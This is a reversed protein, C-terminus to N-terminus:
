ASGLGDLARAVREGLASQRQSQEARDIAMQIARTSGVLVVLERARTVATYLLNRQLMMFHQGVLPIVVAPYESGQSRHVTIAFAPQLDSLEEPSYPVVHESFEVFLRGDEDIRAIRGMDGNFIEREYDNRTHIVRDGTRWTRGRLEIERGGIHAAERMRRNLVDVGCDGRYMPALVQVSELWDLGFNKPIRETVVEVTREACQAPDEAPFFYFDAERDGREPLVPFEGQLIRHANEIILSGRAQRFIRTLRYVPLRESSILDRLVNGPGVSPLQDPDGVCVLRTPPRVAKFLHHALVVDLMSIEDVVILDAELPTRADHAFRAARADWGLMRHITAAPCATAESLRKAARGTPSALLVRAGSNRALDVVLRVITTKGVGPGGTLLCLPHTLLGLVAERQASHLEINSEREAHELEREDAMPRVEGGQVLRLVSAALGSESAALWPLYARQEFDERVDELTLEQDTALGQLAERLPGEEVEQGLLERAAGELDRTPLFSHGNGAAERLVHLLGARCRVDSTPVIGLQAAFRDTLAFGIGPVKGAVQYPDRRLAAECDIGFTKVVKAAQTPGLGVGRLFALLSHTREERGLTEVLTAKVAGKLGPIGDLARAEGRIRELAEPGLKSVIRRALTDGVGPFSKSALYRVVGESDIPPLKEYSEFQFQRGHTRHSTWRGFLRLRLGAGAEPLSGVATLVPAPVLFSDEPDRYGTEPRLKLVSYLTEPAHFTVREISGQLVHEPNERAPDTM